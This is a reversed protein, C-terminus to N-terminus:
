KPALRAALRNRIERVRAADASRHLKDLCLIELDYTNLHMKELGREESPFNKLVQQARALADKYNGKRISLNVMQFRADTSQVKDLSTRSRPELNDFITLAQEFLPEALAIKSKDLYCKAELILAHGVTRDTPGYLKEYEIRLQKALQLCKDTKRKNELFRLYSFQYESDERSPRKYMKGSLALVKQGLADAYAFDHHTGAIIFLSNLLSLATEKDGAELRKRHLDYLVKEAEVLNDTRFYCYALSSQAETTDPLRQKRNKMADMSKGFLRIANSYRGKKYEEQGEKIWGVVLAPRADDFCISPFEESLKRLDEDSASVRITEIYPNARALARAARASSPNLRMDLSQLLPIKTLASTAGDTIHNRDIRLMELKKLRTLHEIGADTIRTETLSLYNLSMGQLQKLADDNVETNELALSRLNKMRAIGKLTKVNTRTMNLKEIKPADALYEFAKDTVNSDTVDIDLVRSKDALLRLDDDACAHRLDLAPVDTSKLRSQFKAKSATDLQVQSTGLDLTSGYNIAIRSDSIESKSTLISFVAFSVASVGLITGAVAVKVWVPKGANVVVNEDEVEERSKNAELRLFTEINALEELIEDATQYRDEPKKSLCKEVVTCLEPTVDPALDLLSPLESHMHQNLVELSTQGSFPQQGSLAEYIVCGISYIESRADYDLGSVQDPSMYGPTGVVTKGQVFTQAQVDQTSKSLGFDILRLDLSEHASQRLLINSPKLDRHFIGHEHLYSLAQCVARFIVVTEYEELFGRQALLEQLSQGLFYEMVMYPRGGSSTGFDFVKVIYDHSLRSATKAEQQFSVIRDDTLAILSKLAVKKRLHMDRCLFVQGLAGQGLIKLPKYRETPFLSQDVEIADEDSGDDADFADSRFTSGSTRVSIPKPDACKCLHESFIWQTVSGSRGESVRKQCIRCITILESESVGAVECRCVNIWQTMTGSGSKTKPKRCSQCLDNDAKTM